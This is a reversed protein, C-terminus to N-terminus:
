DSSLRRAGGAGFRMLDRVREGTQLLVTPQKSMQNLVDAMQGADTEDHWGLLRIYGGAELANVTERQNEATVVVISPLGLISREWVASGGAGLAVDALSCLKAMDQTQCYYATNSLEACRSEILEKQPNGAGVVVDFHVNPWDLIKIADLAKQTECTPDSGGFFVLVRRIRGDRSRPSSAEKEFQPTLLVFQPGLLLQCSPPVKGDYRDQPSPYYNQDLLIECDHPRNALDDIVLIRKACGRMRREWDADLGYHDVILWDQVANVAHWTEDADREWDVAMAGPLPKSVVGGELVSDPLAILRFGRSAIFDCLNGALRRSAFEVYDGRDRLALALTLCRMVHGSGIAVSADARITVRM